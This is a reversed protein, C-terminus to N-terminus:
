ARVELDAGLDRMAVPFRPYSVAFSADDHFTTEGAAALGCVAFAMLIRHDEETEIAAGRVGGPAGHIVAGDEREDCRVGMAALGRVMARIRDSEKFRLHKAGRLTTAGRAHAALACLVPFMDPTDSLDLDIAELPGGVVRVADGREEVKAGFARLADLIRKDGQESAPDLNDVTVDGGTVAAAALPFAASSWDGPVRYDAGKLTQAGPVRFGGPADEIAGGFARAMALTIEVYPRSKLPTTIALELGRPAKLGALLLGSVFQSSVDGTISTAGGLLPGRVVVPACGDRRTSFAEAGLPTLADLLPQMPRKRLSADGTLVAAGDALAAIPTALRLTTGSNRADLIDEPARVTGGLVRLGERTEEVAGGLKRVCALTALPDESLLPERVFSSESLLGLLLARHTYSKSAPAPTRGRVVSRRVTIM